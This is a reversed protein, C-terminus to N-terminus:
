SPRVSRGWIRDVTWCVLGVGLLGYLWPSVSQSLQLLQELPNILTALDQPFLVFYAVALSVVLSLRVFWHNSM